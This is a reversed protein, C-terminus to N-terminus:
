ARRVTDMGSLSRLREAGNAWSVTRRLSGSASGMVAPAAAAAGANVGDTIVAIAAAATPKSPPPNVPHSAAAQTLTSSRISVSHSHARRRAHPVLTLRGCLLAIMPARMTTPRAQDERGAAADVGGRRSGGARGGVAWPRNDERRRAKCGLRHM